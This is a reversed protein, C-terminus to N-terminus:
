SPARTSITTSRATSTTEDIQQNRWDFVRSDTFGWGEAKLESMAQAAAAMGEDPLYWHQGHRQGPLLRRIPFGRERAEELTVPVAGLAEYVRAFVARAINRSITKHPLFYGPGMEIGRFGDKTTHNNSLTKQIIIFAASGQMKPTDEVLAKFKEPGTPSLPLPTDLALCSM